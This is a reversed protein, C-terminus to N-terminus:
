RERLDGVKKKERSGASPPHYIAGPTLADNVIDAQEQQHRKHSGTAPSASEPRGVYRLERSRRMWCRSSATRAHLAVRGYQAAGGAGVGDGGDPRVAGPYRAGTPPSRISSSWAFWLSTNRRASRARRWCTTTSRAPASSWARSVTAPDVADDLIELFGGTTFDQLTRFRARIGCCARRRSSWWRSAFGRRDHGGYM